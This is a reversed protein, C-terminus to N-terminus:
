SKLAYHNWYRSVYAKFNCLIEANQECLANLPKM